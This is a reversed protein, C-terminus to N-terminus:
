RTDIASGSSPPCCTRSAPRPCMRPRAPVRPFAAQDGPDITATFVVVKVEPHRRYSKVARRWDTSRRFTSTSCLCTPSSGSWPRWYRARRRRRQGRCRLGTGTVPLRGEGDRPLRRRAARTTAASYTAGSTMRRDRAANRQPAAHLHIDRGRGSQQARQHHRWARDVITQVITLGIGMGHSKTTVFPTFLKGDLDPPCARAPIACPSTSRPM